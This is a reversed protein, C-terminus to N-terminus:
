LIQLILDIRNVNAQAHLQLIERDHNDYDETLTVSMQYIKKVQELAMKVPPIDMVLLEGRTGLYNLIMQFFSIET